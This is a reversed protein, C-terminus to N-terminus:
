LPHLYVVGKKDVLVKKFYKQFLKKRFFYAVIKLSSRLANDRKAPAFM